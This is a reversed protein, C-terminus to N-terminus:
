KLFTQGFIFHDDPNWIHLDDAVYGRLWLEGDIKRLYFGKPFEDDESIIETAVTISGLPAQQKKSVGSAELQDLSALRLHPGLEVPCLALGLERARQFLQPLTAGDPFGLNRVTLEVTQISYTKDSTLFREDAFLQEAYENLRIAHQRLKEHLQSKTEGGVAVKRTIFQCDPYIKM